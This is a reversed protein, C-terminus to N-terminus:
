RKHPARRARFIPGAELGAQPKHLLPVSLATLSEIKTRQLLRSVTAPHVGFLRAADAATRKGRKVLKM